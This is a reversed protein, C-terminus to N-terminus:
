GNNDLFDVLIEYVTAGDPPVADYVFYEDQYHQVEPPQTAHLADEPYSGFYAYGDEGIRLQGVGSADNVAKYLLEGDMGYFAIGYVLGEGIRFFDMDSSCFRINGDSENYLTGLPLRSTYGMPTRAGQMAIEITGVEVGNYPIKNTVDTDSYSTIGDIAYSEVM